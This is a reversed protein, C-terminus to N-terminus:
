MGPWIARSLRWGNKRRQEKPLARLQERVEDKIELRYRVADTELKTESRALGSLQGAVRDEPMAEGFTALFLLRDPRCVSRSRKRSPM